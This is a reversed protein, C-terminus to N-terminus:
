RASSTKWLLVTGDSSGSALMRGDPSFSVSNVSGTHGTLVRQQEGTVAAWLRVTGDVSGSALTRGDPSFSVSSVWDTHGTLLATEQYTGTDYFWIGISSAVALRAGDPSFKIETISGKGLRAKALAPLSWQQTYDQDCGNLLFLAFLIPLTATTKM